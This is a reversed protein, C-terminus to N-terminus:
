KYTGTYMMRYLVRARRGTQIYWKSARMHKAAAHYYVPKHKLCWLMSKFKFLGTIGVNYTINLIVSKRVDDLRTYWYLTNLKTEIISLRHILLLTAESETISTINTGYGITLHETSDIYVKSSFGEYRKLETVTNSLVSAHLIISIFLISISKM